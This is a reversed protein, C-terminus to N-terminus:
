DNLVGNKLAIRDLVKKYNKKEQKLFASFERSEDIAKHPDRFVGLTICKNKKDFVSQFLHDSRDGTAFCKLRQLNMSEFSRWNSNVLERYSVHSKHLKKLTKYEQPMGRSREFDRIKPINSIDVGIFQKKNVVKIEQSCGIFLDLVEGFSCNFLERAVGGCPKVYDVRYNKLRNHIWGEVKFADGIPCSFALLKLDKIKYEYNKIDRYRSYPDSGVGIKYFENVKSYLLYIYGRKVRADGLSNLITKKRINLKVRRRANKQLRMKDKFDTIGLDGLCDLCTYISSQHFEDSAKRSSCYRCTRKRDFTKRSMKQSTRQRDM